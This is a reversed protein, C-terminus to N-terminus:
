IGKKDSRQISPNKVFESFRADEKLLQQIRVFIFTLPTFYDYTFLMCIVNSIWM